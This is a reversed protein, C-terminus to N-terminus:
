GNSPAVRIRRKGGIRMGEMGEIVAAPAQLCFKWFLRLYCKLLLRFLSKGICNHYEDGEMGEMVAGPAREAHFTELPRLFGGCRALCCINWGSVIGGKSCRSCILGSLYGRTGM